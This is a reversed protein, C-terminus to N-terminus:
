TDLVENLKEKLANEITQQDPSIVEQNEVFNELSSKEENGIPADLALPDWDYQLIEQVKGAPLGTEKEIEKTTPERELNKLLERQTRNIKTKKKKKQKKKHITKTK